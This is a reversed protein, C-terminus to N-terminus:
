AFVLTHSGVPIPNAPRNWTLACSGAFSQFSTVASKSLSISDDITLTSFPVQGASTYSGNIELTVKAPYGAPDSPLAARWVMSIIEGSAGAAPPASPNVNAYTPTLSGYLGKAFGTETVDSPINAAVLTIGPPSAPFGAVVGPMM